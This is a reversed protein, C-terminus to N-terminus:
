GTTSHHNVYHVVASGVGVAANWVHSAISILQTSAQHPEAIWYIVVCVVLVFVTYSVAKRVASM